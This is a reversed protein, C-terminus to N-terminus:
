KWIPVIEVDDVWVTGKGKPDIRLYFYHAHRPLSTEFSVYTWDTAGALNIAGMTEKIERPKQYVPFDTSISITGAFDQSKVWAGIRYKPALYPGTRYSPGLRANPVDGYMGRNRMEEGRIRMSTSDGRGVTRDIAYTGFWRVLSDGSAAPVITDFRNVPEAHAFNRTELPNYQAEVLIGRQIAKEMEAPTWAYWKAHGTFVDGAKVRPVTANPYAVTPTFHLDLGWHCYDGYFDHANDEPFEIAVAWRDIRHAWVGGKKVVLKDWTSGLNKHEHNAPFAGLKGDPRTFVAYNETARCMPM